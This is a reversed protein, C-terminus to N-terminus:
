KKTSIFTTSKHIYICIKFLFEFFFRILNRTSDNFSWKNAPKDINRRSRTFFRITAFIKVLASRIGKNYHFRTVKIIDFFVCLQSRSFARALIFCEKLSCKTCVSIGRWNNFLRIFILVLTWRFSRFELPQSGWVKLFVFFYLMRPHLEGLFCENSGCEYEWM